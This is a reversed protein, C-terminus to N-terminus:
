VSYKEFFRTKAYQPLKGGWACRIELTKKYEELLEIVNWWIRCWKDATLARQTDEHGGSVIGRSTFLTEPEYKSLWAFLHAFTHAHNIRANWLAMTAIWLQLETNYNREIKSRKQM